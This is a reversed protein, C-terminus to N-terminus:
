CRREKEVFSRSSNNSCSCEWNINNVSYLGQPFSFHIDCFQTQTPSQSIIENKDGTYSNVGQEVTDSYTHGGITISESTLVIELNAEYDNGRTTSYPSSTTYRYESISYSGLDISIVKTANYGGSGDSSLNSSSITTQTSLNVDAGGSVFTAVVEM